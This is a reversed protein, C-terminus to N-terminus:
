RVQVNIIAVSSNGSTDYTTASIRYTRNAAAPVAWQCEYTSLTDTCLLAGEIFFEVRQVAV